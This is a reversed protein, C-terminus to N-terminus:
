SEAYAYKLSEELFEDLCTRDVDLRYLYSFTGDGNSCMYQIEGDERKTDSCFYLRGNIVKYCPHVGLFLELYNSYKNKNKDTIELGLSNCKNKSWEELTNEGINIEHLIGSHIEIKSM